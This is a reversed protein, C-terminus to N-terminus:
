ASAAHLGALAALDLWGFRSRFLFADAMARRFLTADCGLETPRRPLGARAFIRHLRAPPLATRAHHTRLLDWVAALREALVAVRGPDALGKEALVRAAAAARSGFRAALAAPDADLPRLPPPEPRALLRAQLRALHLTALAVAEGHLPTGAAPGAEELLHAVAHEGQSAPASTGAGRMVLSQVLLWVVLARVAETEGAPLGDLRALVAREPGRQVAFVHAPFPRDLLCAALRLDNEVTTRCLADGLGARRLRWPARALVGLDFFAARPPATPISTKRGARALSATATLWGNMSPATAFVACPRGARHAAYKALDCLTGGGVAVVTGVGDLEGALAEALEVTAAPARLRLLRGGIEAALREGLAPATNEDALLLWPGPLGAEELLARGRGSLDPALVLAPPDALGARLRALPPPLATM